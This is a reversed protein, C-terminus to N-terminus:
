GLRATRRWKLAEQIALYAHGTADYVHNQNGRAIRTGEVVQRLNPVRACIAAETDEKSGSKRGVIQTKLDAPMFAFVPIDHRYATALVLAYAMLVKAADGRGRIFRLSDRVSYLDMLSKEVEPYVEPDRLREAVTDRPFTRDAGLTHLLAGSADKLQEIEKPDFVTYAEVGIVNPCVADVAAQYHAWIQSLRYVDQAAKRSKRWAADKEPSPTHTYLVGASEYRSEAEYYRLGAIGNNALGPDIGLATTVGPLREPRALGCCGSEIHVVQKWVSGAGDTFAILDGLVANPADVAAHFTKKGSRLAELVVPTVNVTHVNM